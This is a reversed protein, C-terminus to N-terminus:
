RRVWWPTRARTSWCRSTKAPRSPIPSRCGTDRRSSPAAPITGSCRPALKPRPSPPFGNATCASQSTRPCRRGPAGANPRWSRSRMPRRPSRPRLAPTARRWHASTDRHEPRVACGDGLDADDGTPWDASCLRRAARQQASRVADVDARGRRHSGDNVRAAIMANGAATGLFTGAAVSPNSGLNALDTVLGAIQTSVDNMQQVSPGVLTNRYPSTPGYFQAGTVARINNTCRAPSKYLSNM